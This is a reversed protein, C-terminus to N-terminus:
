VAFTDKIKLRVTVGPKSFTVSHMGMHADPDLEAYVTSIV